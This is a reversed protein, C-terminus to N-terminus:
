QTLFEAATFRYPPELGPRVYQKFSAHRKCFMGVTRHQPPAAVLVKWAIESTSMVYTESCDLSQAIECLTEFAGAAPNIRAAVLPQVNRPKRTPEGYGLARLFVVDGTVFDVASTLGSVGREQCSM